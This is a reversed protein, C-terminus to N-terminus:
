SSTAPTARLRRGLTLWFLGRQVVSELFLFLCFFFGEPFEGGGGRDGLEQIPQGTVVHSTGHITVSQPIEFCM